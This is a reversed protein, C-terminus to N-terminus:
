KFSGFTTGRTQLRGLSKKIYCIQLKKKFEPRAQTVFGSLQFHQKPLVEVESFLLLNRSVAKFSTIKLTGELGFCETTRCVQELQKNGKKIYFHIKNRIYINVDSLCTFATSPYLMSTFISHRRWQVPFFFSSSTPFCQSMFIHKLHFDSVLHISCIAPLHDCTETTETTEITEETTESSWLSLTKSSCKM